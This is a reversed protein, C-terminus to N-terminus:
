DCNLIKDRLRVHNEYGHSKTMIDAWRNKTPVCEIVIRDYKICKKVYDQRIGTM